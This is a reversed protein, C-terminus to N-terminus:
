EPLRARARVQQIIALSERSSLGFRHLSHRAMEFAVEDDATVAETIGSRRLKDAESHLVARAIIDAHPNIAHAREAFLRTAFPDSLTIIIVRADEIGAHEMVAPSTPSGEVVPVDFQRARRARAPNDEIITVDFRPHLIGLVTEGVDDFGCILARRGLRAPPQAGIGPPPLDRSRLVAITREAGALVAPTLIISVVAAAILATFRDETLVDGDLGSAALLFTFEGAPAVIAAGLLAAPMPTRTGLLSLSTLAYRVGLILVVAALLVKWEDLTASPDVFMGATVFFLVAFIDRVPLLEGLVRHSLDSESVVIGALFAGLALSLGIQESVLATGIVLTAVALFFLERSREEAVRNLVFPVVRLGIVLVAAVFATAKAAAVSADRAADIASVDRTETISELVVIFVVAILDQIIAYTIAIQGHQSAIEGRRELMTVVVISSCISAAAGVYAAEQWGIGLLPILLLGAGATLITSFLTVFLIRTGGRYLDAITFQVGVSFLLLVVGIDAILRLRDIDGVFGPTFPSIVLGAAIYGVIAPLRLRTALWGGALAVAFAVAVDLLLSSDNEV